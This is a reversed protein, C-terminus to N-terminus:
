FCVTEGIDVGVLCVCRSFTDTWESGGAVLVCM